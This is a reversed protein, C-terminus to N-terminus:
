GVGYAHSWARGEVPAFAMSEWFRAADADGVHVTVRSTINLAENLLANAIARGVGQGRASRKVYLRRMRQASPDDPDATLGGIGLLEGAGMAALLATFLEPTEALEAELRAMNRHGEADAEARLAEFGDPLDDVIRVLQVM